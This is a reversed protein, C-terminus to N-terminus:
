KHSWKMNEKSKDVILMRKTAATTARNMTKIVTRMFSLGEVWFFSFAISVLIL